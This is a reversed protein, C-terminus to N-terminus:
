HPLTPLTAPGLTSTTAAALSCFRELGGSGIEAAVNPYVKLKLKM